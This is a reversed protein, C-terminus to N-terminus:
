IKVYFVSGSPSFVFIPNAPTGDYGDDASLVITCANNQAWTKYGTRCRKCPTLSQHVLINRGRDSDQPLIADEYCVAASKRQTVAKNYLEKTVVDNGNMLGNVINFSIGANTAKLKLRQAKDVFKALTAAAPLQANTLRAQDAAHGCFEAITVEKGVTLVRGCMDDWAM